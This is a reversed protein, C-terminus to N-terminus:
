CDDLSTAEHELIIPVDARCSRVSAIIPEM